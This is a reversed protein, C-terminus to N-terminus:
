DQDESVPTARAIGANAWMVTEELHTFALALERGDPVAVNLLDAFRHATDRIEKYLAIQNSTPPHYTFRNDLDRQEIM